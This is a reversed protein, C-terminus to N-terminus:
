EFVEIFEHGIIKRKAEPDTVGKLKELFRAQADVVILDIGYRRFAQEVEEREGKRLLGHDVFVCRLQEGVARHILLATVTSDVGGSLACIVKGDGVQQRILEVQRAVFAAPTWSREVGCLSLFNDLIVDGKETRPSEPHFFAGYVRHDRHAFAVPGDNTWAIPVFGAPDAVRPGTTWAQFPEV